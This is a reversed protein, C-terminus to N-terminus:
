KQVVVKDVVEWVTRHYLRQSICVPPPQKIRTTNQGFCTVSKENLDLPLTNVQRFYLIDGKLASSFSFSLSSLPLSSLSSLVNKYAKSIFTLWAAQLLLASRVSNSFSDSFSVCIMLPTEGQWAFYMCRLSHAQSQKCAWTPPHECSSLRISRGHKQRQTCVTRKKCAYICM